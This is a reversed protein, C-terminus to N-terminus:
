GGSSNPDTEPDLTIVILRTQDNRKSYRLGSTSYDAYRRPVTQGHVHDELALDETLVIQVVVVEFDGEPLNAQNDADRLTFQGQTSIRSTYRSGDILNRFEISGAQVPSGDSFQVVGSSSADNNSCGVMLSILHIGVM